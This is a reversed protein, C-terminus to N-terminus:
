STRTKREKIIEFIKLCLSIIFLIASLIMLWKVMLFNRTQEYIIMQDYWFYFMGTAILSGVLLKTSLRLPEKQISNGKAKQISRCIYCYKRGTKLERGCIDCYRAM